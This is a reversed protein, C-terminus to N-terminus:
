IPCHPPDTQVLKHKLVDNEDELREIKSEQWVITILAAILLVGLYCICVILTDM